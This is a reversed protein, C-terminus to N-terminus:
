PRVEYVVIVPIRTSPDAEDTGEVYETHVIRGHYRQALVLLKEAFHSSRAASYADWVVYQLDGQRLSRDPNVIPTYAPNRHLPNPSVSLGYAQRHGYFSVINAMSPGLTLITAGQPTQAGLWHGVERGGPVGGTGALFQTGGGGVVHQVSGALVSLLVIGGVVVRLGGRRPAVRGLVTVRDPLRLVGRAALVAVAPAVPLLYQFGKVPWLEFFLVPALIWTVLLIERWAGDRRPRWVAALAAILVLPGLVPPVTVAYFEWGHNAPRLLQWVLYSQGTEAHGSLAQTVPHVAFVAVMVGLAGLAGLIPRRLQPTLALFAYVGGLLVLSSEKALLTLGMAGGAALLWVVRGSRGYRAVYLLTTTAFLVMPGDLLIQRTVLVHYPLVAILAAALLGTRRDYLECGLLYVVGVTAVGIAAVVFRGAIDPEGTGYVFSLLTQVLMPHARFVPFMETYVPNGALSAAQGAYVVEDSNLGFTNLNVLRLLAGVGMATLLALRARASMRGARRQTEQPGAPAPEHEPVLTRAPHQLSVM